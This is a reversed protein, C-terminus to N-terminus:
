LIASKPNVIESQPRECREFTYAFVYPNADWSEPGNIKNWLSEFSHVADNAVHAWHGGLEMAEKKTVDYKYYMPVGCELHQLMNEVGEAIADAETIDQLREVKVATIRLFSRAAAKPMHVSPKWDASWKTVGDDNRDARYIFPGTQIGDVHGSPVPAFTERVYLVDDLQYPSFSDCVADQKINHALMNLATQNKIVQRTQTKRGDLIAQVMPTSFLIPKMNKM